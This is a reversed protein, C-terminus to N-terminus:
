DLADKFGLRSPQAARVRSCVSRPRVDKALRMLTLGGNLKSQEGSHDGARDYVARAEVSRGYHPGLPYGSRWLNRGTYFERFVAEDEQQAFTQQCPLHPHRRACVRDAGTKEPAKIAPFNRLYRAVLGPTWHTEFGPNAQTLLVLGISNKAKAESFARKMWAINAKTREAHEADMEPTRGKNDNSGVIHLTAFTVGNFSWMLNERYNKFGADKAQSDVSITKQGLSRGEPFFMERVKALHEIPDFKRAKVEHCDTWDNDGPTLIFPNSSKQFTTLVRQLNEDTCPMTVKDPNREYPRPDAEFDGVHVLFALSEKNLASMLRDFEQEAVKSYSTDGIVGFQFKQTQAEVIGVFAFFVAALVPAISFTRRHRPARSEEIM